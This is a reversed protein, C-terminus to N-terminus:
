IEVVKVSQCNCDVVGAMIVQMDQKSSMFELLSNFHGKDLHDFFDDMLILRLQSDSNEVIYKMLAYAYLTKEGTSLLNYPIYSTSNYSSREIGFSFSNAKAEVNFKCKCLPGFLKEIDPNLKSELNAFGTSSLKTQLGNASTLKVWAQLMDLKSQVQYKEALMSDVLQANQQIRTATNLKTACSEMYNMADALAEHKQQEQQKLCEVDDNRVATENLSKTLSQILEAKQETSNLNAKLASAKSQKAKVNEEAIQKKKREANIQKALDALQQECEKKRASYQSRLRVISDCNLQTYPCTGNSQLVSDYSSAEMELKCKQEALEALRQVAENKQKQAKDVSSSASAIQRNLGDICANVSDISQMSDLQHKITSYSSKAAEADALDKHAQLYADQLKAVKAKAEKYEQTLAEVDYNEADSIDASDMLGNVANEKEALVAKCYSVEEKLMKNAAAVQEVATDAQISSIKNSYSNVLKQKNDCAISEVSSSLEQKWNVDADLGPIFEIFWDKLKNSTLSTFSNWDFVPLKSNGVIDDLTREVPMPDIDLDSTVSRGKRKFTRTVEITADELQKCLSVTVSLKDSNAHEMVASNSKATGPIYGLLCLQIANLVTSKGAGNPGHLYTIQDFDYTKKSVNRMGKITVSKIYM